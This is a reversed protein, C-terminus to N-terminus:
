DGTPMGQFAGAASQAGSLLSTVMKLNGAKRARKAAAGYKIAEVRKNYADFKAENRANWAKLDSNYRIAMEDLNESNFTDMAIDEATASGGGIGAAAMAAKQSGRVRSADRRQQSLTQAGEDVAMQVNKKGTEEALDASQLMQDRIMRYEQEQARGENRAGVGEMAAGAVALTATTITIPDCM